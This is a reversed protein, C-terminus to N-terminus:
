PTPSEFLPLIPAVLDMEPERGLAECVRLYDRVLGGMLPRHAAPLREFPARLVAIGEAFAAVAEEPAEDGLAWGLAGLSTALDPLFADPRVEALRRYIEVAERAAELAEERQGLDSLSNGLSNLATALDPLFADPRAEALRRRIYVAER